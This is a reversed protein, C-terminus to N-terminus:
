RYITRCTPECGDQPNEGCNAPPLFGTNTITRVGNVICVTFYELCCQSTTCPVFFWIYNYHIEEFEIPQIIGGGVGGPLEAYRWCGGKMVRWNNECPDRPLLPPFNGPNLTIFKLTIDNIIEATSLQNYCPALTYIDLGICEIYYDWYMNCAYRMRWRVKVSYTHDDDTCIIITTENAPNPFAPVWTSGTCDPLCPESIYQAKIDGIAFITILIALLLSFKRMTKM